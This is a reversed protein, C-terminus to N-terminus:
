IWLGADKRVAFSMNESMRADHASELCNAIAKERISRMQNFKATPRTDSPKTAMEFCYGCLPLSDASRLEFGTLNARTRAVFRRETELDRL